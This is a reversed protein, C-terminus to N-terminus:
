SDSAPLEAIILEVGADRLRRQWASDLAEDTVVTQAEGLSCLRSLSAHGFKSSDAVIMVESSARIMAQETEVLLLNSNYYGQSDAGAISLAARRVHIQELLQNTFPGLSVGTRVHIYGGLMILDVSDCAAFLNAVPLSNTVVQLPRGLLNRALEYTTSGGDLLITENDAIREAARRAIALKRGWLSDQRGAFIRMSTASGTWVVGGHTRKAEGQEELYDLDRRVTSDSVGLRAALDSLSAFSQSQILLRLEQRRQESSTGSAM